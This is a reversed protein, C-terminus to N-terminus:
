QQPAFSLPSSPVPVVVGLGVGAGTLPLRLKMDILAPHDSVQPTVVCFATYQQPARIAVPSVVRIVAGTSTAPAPM